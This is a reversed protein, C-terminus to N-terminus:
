KLSNIGMDEDIKILGVVTIRYLNGLSVQPLLELYGKQVCASLGDQVTTKLHGIAGLLLCIENESLQLDTRMQGRKIMQHKFVNLITKEDIKEM